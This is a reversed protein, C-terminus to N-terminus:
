FFTIMGLTWHMPNPLQIQKKVTMDQYGKMKAEIRQHLEDGAIIRPIIKLRDLNERVYPTNMATSLVDRMYTVQKPDTGRPFWWYQLNSSVIPYGQEKGTPVHAVEDAPHREEGFYAIARLGTDRFRIYESVSFIAVDVHGGKLAALRKSGGGTPVFIFRAGKSAEELMIGTFHPPANLNVGFRVTDPKEEATAMLEELNRFPSDDPVLLILGSEGTAAIPEFSDPGHPSQGSAKTTMMAEHLCLMTYGDPKAYKVYSSGITTAGGPKNVVVLPHPMLQEDKIAKNIFRVFTDTGGGPNFPVIVKIPKQPYESGRTKAAVYSGYVAYAVFGFVCVHWIKQIM